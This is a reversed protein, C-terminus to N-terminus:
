KFFDALPKSVKKRTIEIIGLATMDILRTRVKDEKLYSDLKQMLTEKDAENEMNVRDCRHTRQLVPYRRLIVVAGVSGELDIPAERM